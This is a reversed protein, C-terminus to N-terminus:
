RTLLWVILILVALTTAAVLLDRRGVGRARGDLDPLPEDDDFGIRVAETSEASPTDLDPDPPLDAEARHDAEAAPPAADWSPPVDDDGVPEDPAPPDGPADPVPELGPEAITVMPTAGDRQSAVEDAWRTVQDTDADLVAAMAGLDDVGVEALALVAVEPALRQHQLVVQHALRVVPVLERDGWYDVDAVLEHWADSLDSPPLLSALYARATRAVDDPLPRAM